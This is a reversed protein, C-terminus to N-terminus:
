AKLNRTEELPRKLLSSESIIGLLKKHELVPIQSIGHKTMKEIVASIKEDPRAFIVKTVMIERAQKEVQQALLNLAREIQQVKSYTPDLKNSEIKAIMSQSIGAHRAFQHQTLNLQKRIKKLQTIDFVM